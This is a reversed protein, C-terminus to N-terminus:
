VVKRRKPFINRITGPYGCGGPSFRIVEEKSSSYFVMIGRQACATEETKIHNKQLAKAIKKCIEAFNEMEGHYVVQLTEFFTGDHIVLFGFAKSDRNSRVWGGVSVEKGMYEDRNHFLERVTILNM